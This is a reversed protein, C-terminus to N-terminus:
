GGVRQEGEYLRSKAATLGICENVNTKSEMAELMSEVTCTEVPIQQSGETDIKGESGEQKWGGANPLTASVYINLDYGPLEERFCRLMKELDGDEIHSLAGAGMVKPPEM